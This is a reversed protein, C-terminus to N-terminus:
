GSGSCSRTSRHARPASGGCPRRAGRVAQEWTVRIVREGAAELLAQREADDERALPNDHWAAGDAEVVLRQDPWRFDPISGGAASGSRCTSTPIRSAAARADPRARRGRAGLAHAGARDRRDARLRARGRRPGPGRLRALSSPSISWSARRRRASRAGCSSTSSCAPSTSCRGCRRRSRSARPAGHHGRPPLYATTRPRPDAPAGARGARRRAGRSAPRDWSLWGRHVGAAVGALLAGPAAPRSRRRPLVGRLPLNAHGVAYVGSISRTCAATACGCGSATTPCAAPACSPRRSCRGRGRPWALAVRGDPRSRCNNLRLGLLEPSPTTATLPM